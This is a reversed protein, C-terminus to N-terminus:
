DRKKLFYRGSIIATMSIGDVLLMIYWASLFPMKALGPILPVLGLNWGVYIGCMCLFLLLLGYGMAKIFDKAEDTFM